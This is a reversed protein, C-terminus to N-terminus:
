PHFEFEVSGVFSTGWVCLQHAVDLSPCVCLSRENDFPIWSLPTVSKTFWDSRVSINNWSIRRNWKNCIMMRSWVEEGKDNLPRPITIAWDNERHAIEVRSYSTASITSQHDGDRISQLATFADLNPCPSGRPNPVVGFLRRITYLVNTWGQGGNRAPVVISFEKGSRHIESVKLFAGSANLCGKLLIVRNGDDQSHLFSSFDPVRVAQDFVDCVWSNLRVNVCIYASFAKWRETVRLVKSNGVYDDRFKFLKQEIM